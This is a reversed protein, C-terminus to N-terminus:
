RGKDARDITTTRVCVPVGCDANVQRATDGAATVAHATPERQGTLGDLAGRGRDVKVVRVLAAGAVQM